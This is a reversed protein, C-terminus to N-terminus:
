LRGKEKNNKLIFVLDGVDVRLIEAVLDCKAKLLFFIDDEVDSLGELNGQGKSIRLDAKRFLKKFENSTKELILGPTKCGSSILNCSRDIGLECAERVTADNLVPEERVAYTLNIDYKNLEKILLRDFVAEGANDAIILVNQSKDIREQFIKYDSRIFGDALAQKINEGLNVKLNVGADLSNGMGSMILSDLLPDDSEDIVKEIEPYYSLASQINNNKCDQYPDEQGTKEKISKQIRGVVEPALDNETIKPIMRAYENVIERVLEKDDTAM